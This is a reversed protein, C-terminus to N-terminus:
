FHVVIHFFTFFFEFTCYSSTRLGLLFLSCIDHSLAKHFLDGLFNQCFMLFLLFDHNGDVTPPSDLFSATVTMHFFSNELMESSM